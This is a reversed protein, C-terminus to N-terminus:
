DSTHPHWGCHESMYWIIKKFVHIHLTNALPHPLGPVIRFDVGDHQSFHVNWPPWLIWLLSPLLALFQQDVKVEGFDMISFSFTNKNTSTNEKCLIYINTIYAIFSVLVRQSAIHITKSHLLRPTSRFRVCLLLFSMDAYMNHDTDSYNWTTHMTYVVDHM